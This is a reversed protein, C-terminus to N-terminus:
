GPRPGPLVLAVLLPDELSRVRLAVAPGPGTASSGGSDAGVLVTRLGAAVAASAGLDSDELAVAQAPDVGLRHCAALYVDPAPKPAPVEDASVVLDVLDLLGIARLTACLVDQPANSSVALKQRGQLRGVLARAGPMPRPPVATLAERLAGHLIERIQGAGPTGGWSAITLAATAVSSGRLATLRDQDLVIGVAAGARTFAQDWGATTDALLGDCDFVVAVPRPWARAPPPADLAPDDGSRSPPVTM